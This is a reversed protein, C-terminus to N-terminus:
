ADKSRAVQIAAWATSHYTGDDLLWKKDPRHVWGILRGDKTIPYHALDPEDTQYQAYHEPNKHYLKARHYPALLAVWEPPQVELRSTLGTLYGGSKHTSGPFRRRYALYIDFAYTLLADLQGDWMQTAPHHLIHLPYGTRLADYIQQCEVLQKGLRKDDLELAGALYHAGRPVFTNM